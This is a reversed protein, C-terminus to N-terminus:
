RCILPFTEPNHLYSIPLYAVGSRSRQGPGAGRSAPIPRLLGGPMLAPLYPDSEM